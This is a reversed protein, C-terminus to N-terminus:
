KHFTVRGAPSPEHSENTAGHWNGMFVSPRVLGQLSQHPRMTVGTYSAIRGHKKKTVACFLPYSGFAWIPCRKHVSLAPCDKIAIVIRATDLVDSVINNLNSQSLPGGPGGSASSGLHADNRQQSPMMGVGAGNTTPRPISPGGGGSNPISM